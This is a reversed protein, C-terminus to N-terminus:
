DTYRVVYLEVRRNRHRGYRTWNEDTPQLEGFGTIHLLDTDVGRAILYYRVAEARQDSLRYNYNMGDTYDAHGSILVRRIGPTRMVFRAADDLAQQTRPTLEIRDHEFLLHALPIFELRGGTDTPPRPEALAARAPLSVVSAAGLGTAPATDDVGPRALAPLALLCALLAPYVRVAPQHGRRKM